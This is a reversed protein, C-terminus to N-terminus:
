LPLDVAEIIRAALFHKEGISSHRPGAVYKALGIQGARKTADGVFSSLNEIFSLEGVLDGVEILRIVTKKGVLIQCAVVRFPDLRNRRGIASILNEGLRRFGM